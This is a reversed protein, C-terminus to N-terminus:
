TGTLPSIMHHPPICVITVSYFYIFLIFYNFFSFSILNFPLRVVISKFFSCEDLSTSLCLGSRALGVGVHPPYFNPLSKDPALLGLGLSSGGAWPELALFTLGWLKQSCFDTPLSDTSSVGPVM